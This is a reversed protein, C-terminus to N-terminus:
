AFHQWRQIPYTRDETQAATFYSFTKIQDGTSPNVIAFSPTNM